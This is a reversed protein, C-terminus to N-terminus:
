PSAQDVIRAVASLETALLSVVDDVTFIAVLRGDESVVPFRRVARGKVIELAEFLGLDELLTVPRETMVEEVSTSAPDRRHCVVRTVIDRDTLVGVVIDERTVVLCGVNRSAMRRAAEGVTADPEVTVVDSRAFNLLM